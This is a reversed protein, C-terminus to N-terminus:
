IEFGFRYTTRSNSNTCMACVECWEVNDPATLHRYLQRTTSWVCAILQSTLQNGDIVHRLKTRHMSYCSGNSHILGIGHGLREM